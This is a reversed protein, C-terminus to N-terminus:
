AFTVTISATAGFMTNYTMTLTGKICVGNKYKTLASPNAANGIGDATFSSVSVTYDTNKAEFPFPCFVVPRNAASAYGVMGTYQLVITNGTTQDVTNNAKITGTAM